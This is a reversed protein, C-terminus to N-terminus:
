TLDDRLAAYRNKLHNETYPSAFFGKQIRKLVDESIDGEPIFEGEHILKLLTHNDIPKAYQYMMVSDHHIAPHDSPVLLCTTDKGRKYSSWNGMLKETPLEAIIVYVHRSYKTQRFVRGVYLDDEKM